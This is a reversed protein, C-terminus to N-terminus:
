PGIALGTRDALFRGDPKCSALIHDIRGLVNAAPVYGMGGYVGRSDNANNAVFTVKQGDPKVLVLSVGTPGQPTASM